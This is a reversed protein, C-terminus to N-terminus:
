RDDGIETELEKFFGILTNAEHTHMFSRGVFNTICQMTRERDEASYDLHGMIDKFVKELTEKQARTSVSEGATATQNKYLEYFVVAGAHTINMVPYEDTTPITVVLDCQSLEENSLGKSERGLVVSIDGEVDAARDAMTAPTIPNRLVNSSSSEVGTTGIAVDIDNIADEMTEYIRADDLIAQAHVATTRADEGISFQPNVLRLEEIGFNAMTRALFGLNQEIEPEVVTCSYM